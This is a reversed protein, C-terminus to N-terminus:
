LGLRELASETAFFLVVGGFVVLAMKIGKTENVAPILDSAAVYLAAGASLPLAYPVLGSWLSITLTGVVTAIGLWAASLFADRRSRGAAVMISGITFGEPVKHLFVAVAVLIGLAPQVVFASGISVGDLLTHLLLGVLASTGVVPEVWHEHHTEEGFHFHGVLVHEAAHILLYGVLILSGVALTPPGNPSSALRFSEPILRLFVAALLFGAGAAMFYSQRVRDWGHRGVALWGGLVNALGAVVGCAAALLWRDGM